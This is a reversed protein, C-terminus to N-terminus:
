NPTSHLQGDDTDENKETRGVQIRSKGFMSWMDSACTVKGNKGMPRARLEPAYYMFTGTRKADHKETHAIGFDALFFKFSHQLNNMYPDAADEATYLVNEFKIDQHAIRYVESLTKLTNLMSRWCEWLLTTRRMWKKETLKKRNYLGELADHKLIDAM